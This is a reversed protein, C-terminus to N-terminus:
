KRKPVKARIIYGHQEQVGGPWAERPLKFLIIDYFGERELEKKFDHGYYGTRLFVSLRHWFSPIHFECFVVYNRSIRKIEHLVRHINFPDVYILAMDTLVVDASNDSMMIDHFPNVKFYGGGFTEQALKIADPNIDIGGLQKGPHDKVIKVLNAGAGCGVELLSIWHFSKM